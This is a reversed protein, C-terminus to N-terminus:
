PEVLLPHDDTAIDDLAEMGKAMVSIVDRAEAVQCGRRYHAGFEVDGLAVVLLQRDESVLTEETPDLAYSSPRIADSVGHLFSAQRSKGLRSWAVATLAITSPRIFSDGYRRLQPLAAEIEQIADVPRNQLLRLLASSNAVYPLDAQSVSMALAGASTLHREAADLLGLAIETCGLDNLIACEFIPRGLRAVRDYAALMDARAAEPQGQMFHVMGRTALTRVTLVPDTTREAAAVAQQAAAMADSGGARSTFGGARSAFFARLRLGEAILDDRHLERAIAMGTDLASAGTEFDALLVRCRALGFQALARDAGVEQQTVNRMASEYADASEQYKSRTWLYPGLNVAMQLAQAGSASDASLEAFAVRLDEVEADLRAFWAGQDSTDLGKSAERSLDLFALSHARNTRHSEDPGADRLREIAYSRVTELLRYRTTSGARDAQVLSKDVLAGILDLTEAHGNDGQGVVREARDLDFAGRFVALRRLAIQEDPSLLDHSWDILARLTQQRASATRSGGTLLRFRDELRSEIEALSLSRLRAAALELALPVGDLRQCISTILRADGEDPHLAGQHSRARELFLATADSMWLASLEFQGDEMEPVALSQLRYIQEGEVGLPERCTAIVRLEPCRRLLTDALVACADILHECNDLIILARRQRLYEVLRDGLSEGAQERLELVDALTVIVRSPDTVAALDVLWVGDGDGDVLEAAVQLALRTKGMGGLGTITVLRHAQVLGRVVELDRERGIFSSLQIPLNHITRDLSSLAPFSQPLGPVIVQFIREAERLDKMRHEGLDRLDIGAPISGSVAAAVASSMLTQGGSGLGRIRACRNVPDGFLNGDRVIVEGTHIGIRVSIARSTAWSEGALAQQIDVVAAVACSPSAFAAFVADGEGQDVPRYGGHTSVCGHVIEHHRRMAADMAARDEQWLRTSGEVDTMVLVLTQLEAFQSDSSV